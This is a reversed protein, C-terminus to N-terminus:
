FKDTGRLTGEIVTNLEPFGKESGTLSKQSVLIKKGNARDTNVQAMLNEYEELNKIDHTTQQNSQQDTLTVQIPHNNLAFMIKSKMLLKQNTAEDRLYESMYSLLFQNDTRLKNLFEVPNEALQNIFEQFPSDVMSEILRTIQAESVIIKM